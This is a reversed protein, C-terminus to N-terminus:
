VVPPAVKKSASGSTGQSGWVDGICRALNTMAPKSGSLALTDVEAGNRTIHMANAAAFENIFGAGDRADSKVSFLLGPGDSDLEKKATAEIKWGGMHDFEVGIDYTRGDQLTDWRQNQILFGLGGMTPIGWISVVTGRDTAAYAMCGDEGKVIKWGDAPSRTQTIAATPAALLALAILPKLM